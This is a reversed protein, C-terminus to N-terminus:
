EEERRLAAAIREGAAQVETALLEIAGMETAADATGLRDIARALHCIACAIQVLPEDDPNLDPDSM